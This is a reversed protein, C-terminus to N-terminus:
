KSIPVIFRGSRRECDPCAPVLCSVFSFPCLFYKTDTRKQTGFIKAKKASIQSKLYVIPIVDRKHEEELFSVYRALHHISFKGAEHQHEILFTFAAEDYKVLLPVDM